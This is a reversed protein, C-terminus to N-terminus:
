GNKDALANNASRDCRGNWGMPFLYSSDFADFVRAFNDSKYALVSFIFCKLTLAALVTSALRRRVWTGVVDHELRFDQFHASLGFDVLKM